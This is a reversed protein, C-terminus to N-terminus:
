RAKFIVFSEPQLHFKDDTIKICYDKPYIITINEPINIKQKIKSLTLYVDMAEGQFSRRYHWLKRKEDLLITEMKGYTFAPYTKRLIIMNRYFDIWKSKKQPRYDPRMELLGMEQGYYSLPAGPVTFLLGAMLKTRNGGYLKLFRPLDHNEIYRLNKAAPPYNYKTKQLGYELASLPKRDNLVDLINGYFDTDYSMDFEDQHFAQQRPLAENILLCEPNIKKIERRFDKWFSHPVAWAVDCRFGDVGLCLWFRAVDLMFHRVQPTNFNLNVLTDWDNHYGWSGDAQWYFWKRLPSNLNDAAAYVFRHQDSLHNAVFDFIVKMGLRHATLILKRYDEVSGYDQETNFFQTPAYGHETPGEYVPMLWIVNVGFNKLHPLHDTLATFSGKKTFRRLFIEYVISTDVWAPSQSFDVCKTKHYHNILLAAPQSFGGEKELICYFFYSGEKRKKNFIIRNRKRLLRSDPNKIDAYWHLKVKGPKNIKLPIEIKTEDEFISDVDFKFDFQVSPTVTKVSNFGNWGDSIKHPNVPDIIWDQDNVVFKYEYQGKALPIYTEWVTSDKNACMPNASNQWQNFEGAVSVQNVPKPYNQANFTFRTQERKAPLVIVETRDHAKSGGSDTVTLKFLYRGAKKASFKAFPSKTEQLSNNGPGKLLRWKYHVPPDFDPDFSKGGNLEITQDLFAFQTYGADAVPRQNDYNVYWLGEKKYVKESDSNMITLNWAHGGESFTPFPMFLTSDKLTFTQPRDDIEFNIHFHRVNEVSDSFSIKVIDAKQYLWSGNDPKVSIVKPYSKGDINIFSNSFKGGYQPNAPDRLWRKENLVFRYYHNGPKVSIRIEWINDGDADVLFHSDPQWDNFDGALALTEIEYNLQRNDFVFTHFIYDKPSCSKSLQFIVILSIIIALRNIWSSM